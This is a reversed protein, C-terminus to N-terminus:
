IREVYNGPFTGFAGTRQSSGVYWGDDCKELVYVVDGELLELEDDNQPRYKYLARYPIPESHTDIHLAENIPNKISPTSKSLSGYSAGSIQVPKARFSTSFHQQHPTSPTYSHSGMSEKGGASGNLLMSHAAPSAVPKSSVSSSQSHGPDILVEVYSVPFIGKRGGIRGEFWNDDVKRTIVVLEGKALSLELHTQAIFNFKARAQGEHHRRPTTKIGDYPIIEAYNAPFLGIMANHEGEYWNKDVQRRIYIIDGKRFTLERASQGVFNYLARAVLRHEPSRPRPKVKPSDETPFDDYRNLPIPSKQSPIFNDTHRRSNIDQLENTFDRVQLYKRRREEEYVRKMHEAQRRSLEEESLSDKVEQRIPTKYHITVDNEVYRRPSETGFFDIGHHGKPPPTPPPLEKFTVTPKVTHPWASKYRLIKLIPSLDKVQTRPPSVSKPRIIRDKKVISTDWTAPCNEPSSLSRTNDEMKPYKHAVWSGTLYPAIDRLEHMNPSSTFMHGLLSIERDPSDFKKRLREVEGLPCGLIEALEKVSKQRVDSLFVTKKPYLSAIKSIINIHPMYRDDANFYIPSVVGGRRIRSRGRNYILPCEYKRRLNDVDGCIQGPISIQKGYLEPNSRTRRITTYNLKNNGFSDMHEFKHKLLQVEGNKITIEDVNDSTLKPVNINLNHKQEGFLEKFDQYSQSAVLKRPQRVEEICDIPPNQQVDTFFEGDNSQNESARYITPTYPREEAVQEFYEVKKQVEEKKGICIVTKTSEDTSGSDTESTLTVRNTVDTSIRKNTDCEISQIKPQSNRNYIETLQGKLLNIQESSLSSWIKSGIGRTLLPGSELLQKKIATIRGESQSRREIIHTALDAVSNGRWLPKYLDRHFVIEEPVSVIRKPSRNLKEFNNKINRVSEDKIRLGRDNELKWRFSEVDKPRFLFGKEKQDDKLKKYVVELEKEARERTHVEKWRDFDIIDEETKGRPRLESTSTTRELEGMRELTSYFNNLEKFKPCPKSPQMETWYVNYLKSVPMVNKNSQISHKELPHKRKVLIPSIPRTTETLIVKSPLSISRTKETKGFQKESGWTVSKPSVSRSRMILDDMVKFKSETVPKTHHLYIRLAGITPESSVSTQRQFLRTKDAVRSIHVLPPTRPLDKWFLHRFFSDTQIANKQKQIENKSSNYLCTSENEVYNCSNPLSNSTRTPRLLERGRQNMSVRKPIEKEKLSSITNTKKYATGLSMSNISSLSIKKTESTPKSTKDSRSIHTKPLVLDVKQKETGFTGLKGKFNSKRTLTPSDIKRLPSYSASRLSSCTNKLMGVKEVDGRRKTDIKFPIRIKTKDSDSTPTFCIEHRKSSPSRDPHATITSILRMTNSNRSSRRKPPSPPVLSLKPISPASSPASRKYESFVPRSSPISLPYCMLQQKNNRVSTLTPSVPFYEKDEKPREPAAKRLGHLPVDGGKQITRYAEKQESPSLQQSADERRRFILTSDSEYGSEKLAQSMYGRIPPPTKQQELHSRTVARSLLYNYNPVASHDDLWGDFIDMVEDWWEKAEKESISSRGPIYNEIRGPQNKYVDQGHRVVESHLVERDRPVTSFMYDNEKDRSPQIRRRDLTAYKHDSATGDSDYYDACFGSHQEPESFYGSTYPYRARRQKYRVTVYERDPKQKHITDYMKRYWRSQNGDKAEPRLVFPMGDRTTPGVGFDYKRQTSDGMKRYRDIDLDNLTYENKAQCLVQSSTLVPPKDERKYSTLESQIYSAGRPLQGERAKQLLTITPNQAKPLRSSSFETFGSAPASYSTPLRKDLSSTSSDVNTTITSSKWPPQVSQSEQTEISETQFKIKRGLKPSEFNVSKYEKREPTPSSGASRPTWVSPIAENDETSKQVSERKDNEDESHKQGPSWVGKRFLFGRSIILNSDIEHLLSSSIQHRNRSLVRNIRRAEKRARTCGEDTVDEKNDAARRTIDVFERLHKPLGKSNKLSDGDMVLVPETSEERDSLHIRSEESDDRKLGYKRMRDKVKNMFENEIDCVHTVECLNNNNDDNETECNQLTRSSTIKIVKHLKRDERDAIKQMYENYMQQRFIETPAMVITKQQETEQKLPEKEDNHLAVDGKKSIRYQRAEFQKPPVEAAMEDLLQRREKELNEIEKHIEREKERIYQIQRQHVEQPLSFRRNPINALRTTNELSSQVLPGENLVRSQYSKSTIEVTATNSLINPVSASKERALNSKTFKCGDLEDNNVDFQEDMKGNNNFKNHENNNIVNYRQTNQVNVNSSREANSSERIIALLRNGFESPEDNVTDMNSFLKINKAAGNHVNSPNEYYSRRNLYMQHLELLKGAEDPVTKTTELHSKQTPSLCVLVNPEQQTPIGVWKTYPNLPMEKRTAPITFSDNTQKENFQECSTTISAPLHKRLRQLSCSLQTQWFSTLEEIGRSVQALEQLIERGFPLTILCKLCLEKLTPPMRSKANLDSIETLSSCLPNHIIACQTKDSECVASSISTDINSRTHRLNLEDCFHQFEEDFASEKGDRNIEASKEGDVNSPQNYNFIETHENNPTQADPTPPPTLQSAPPLIQTDSPTECKEDADSSDSDSDDIYVFEADFNSSEAVSTSWSGQINEAETLKHGVVFIKESKSNVNSSSNSDSNDSSEERIVELYRPQQLVPMFHQAIAARKRAKREKYGEKKQIQASSGEVEDEPSILNIEIPKIEDELSLTSSEFYEGHEQRSEECELEFTVEWEVDSNAEETIVANCECLTKDESEGVESLETIKVIDDDDLSKSKVVTGLKQSAHGQKSVTEPSEVRYNDQVRELLKNTISEIESDIMANSNVTVDSNLASTSVEVTTESGSADTSAVNSYIGKKRNEHSRKKNSRSHGGMVIDAIVNKGKDTAIYETAAIEIFDSIINRAASDCTEQRIETGIGKPEGQFSKISPSSSCSSSFTSRQSIVGNEADNKSVAGQQSHSKRSRKLRFKRLSVFANRWSRKTQTRRNEEVSSNTGRPLTGQNDLCTFWPVKM